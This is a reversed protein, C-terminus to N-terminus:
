ADLDLDGQGLALAFPILTLSQALRLVLAFGFARHLGLLVQLPRGTRPTSERWRWRREGGEGLRGSRM